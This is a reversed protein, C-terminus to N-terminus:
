EGSGSRPSSRSGNSHVLEAHGVVEVQDGVVVGGIDLDQNWHLGFAQRDVTGRATYVTRARGDAGISAAGPIVRMEVDRVAGHLELAGEIIIEGGEIRVDTSTFEARPFRAVDLFEASCVHADRDPDGTTISALDIWVRASSLAPDRRNLFLTGGWLRFEGRIQQVVIHRLNFTLNSRDPDIDWRETAWDM